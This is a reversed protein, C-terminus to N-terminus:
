SRSAELFRDMTTEIICHGKLVTLTLANMAKARRIMDEINNQLDFGSLAM